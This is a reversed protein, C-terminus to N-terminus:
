NLPPSWIFYGRFDFHFNDYVSEGEMLVEIDKSERNMVIIRESTFFGTDDVLVAYLIWEDDPSTSMYYARDEPPLITENNEVDVLISEERSIELLDGSWEFRYPNDPVNMDPTSEWVVNSEMDYVQVVGEDTTAVWELNPSIAFDFTDDADVMFTSLESNGDDLSFTHYKVTAQEADTEINIYHLTEGEFRMQVDIDANVPMISQEGSILDVYVIGNKDASLFAASQKSESFQLSDELLSYGFQVGDETLRVLQYYIYEGYAEVLFDNDGIVTVGDFISILGEGLFDSLDEVQEHATMNYAFFAADCVITIYNSGLYIIDDEWNFAKLGCREQEILVEGTTTEILFGRGDSIEYATLYDGDPSVSTVSLIVPPLVVETDRLGVVPEEHTTLAQSEVDYRYIHTAPEDYVPENEFEQNPDYGIGIIDGEATWTPLQLTIDYQGFLLYIPIIQTEWEGDSDLVAVHVADGAKFMMGYQISPETQASSLPINAIFILVLIIIFALRKM